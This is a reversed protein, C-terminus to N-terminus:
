RKPTEFISKEQFIRAKQENKGDKENKKWSEKQLYIKNVINQLFAYFDAAFIVTQKKYMKLLFQCSNEVCEVATKSPTQM